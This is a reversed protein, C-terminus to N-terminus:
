TFHLVYCPLIQDTNFIVIERYQGSGDNLPLGGHSDYGRELDRASMAIEECHYIKGPLIKSLIM